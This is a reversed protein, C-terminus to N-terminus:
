VYFDCNLFNCYICVDYDFVYLIFVMVIELIIRLFYKFLIDLNLIIFYVNLKFLYLSICM